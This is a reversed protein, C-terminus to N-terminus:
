AGAKAPTVSSRSPVDYVYEHGPKRLSRERKATGPCSEPSSM